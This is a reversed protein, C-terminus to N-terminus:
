CIGYGYLSPKQNRFFLVNFSCVSKGYLDNYGAGLISKSSSKSTSSKAKSHTENCIATSNRQTEGFICCCRFFIILEISYQCYLLCLYIKCAGQSIIKIREFDDQAVKITPKKYNDDDSSCAEKDLSSSPIDLGLM